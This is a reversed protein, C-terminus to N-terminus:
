DKLKSQLSEDKDNSILKNAEIPDILYWYKNDYNKFIKDEKILITKIIEPDSDLEAAILGTPIKGGYDLLVKIISSISM